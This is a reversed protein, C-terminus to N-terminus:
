HWDFRRFCLLRLIVHDEKFVEGVFHSALDRDALLQLDRKVRCIKLLFWCELTSQTSLKHNTPLGSTIRPGWM